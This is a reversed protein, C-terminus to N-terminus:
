ACGVLADLDEAILRQLGPSPDTEIGYAIVREPLLYEHIVRGKCLHQFLQVGVSTRPESLRIHLTTGVQLRVSSELLMGHRSINVTWASLELDLFEERSLRFKVPIRIAYRINTRQELFTM